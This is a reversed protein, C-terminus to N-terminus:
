LSKDLLKAVFPPLANVDFRMSNEWCHIETVAVGPLSSPGLGYFVFTGTEEALALHKNNLAEYDGRIYLQFFNAHPPNPNISIQEFKALIAAVERAKEVWQGIQPLVHKLGLKASVWFPGMTRLRGGHRIQWLRAEKIFEAPGLLMAGCLGDLDKYFSVYVTDFIDAIEQYSKQYFPRCQWIRAGDLHMPIEREKAWAQIALLEEWQPLQGGLPRCPLELFVAGPKKGLGELDKVTFLRNAVFEPAGFQLRQIHHLFRYGMQEAIELHATPHMAVTFNNQRECWIRLAIQQAMTGTPMFVAAEKGFFTAIESEFNAIDTGYGYNDLYENGELADAFTQFIEKMSRKKARHGPLINTCQELVTEVSRM